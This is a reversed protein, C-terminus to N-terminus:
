HKESRLEQESGGIVIESELERLHAHSALPQVAQELHAFDVQRPNEREGLFKIPVMATRDVELNFVDFRNYYGSLDHFQKPVICEDLDIQEILLRDPDGVKTQAMVEGDPGLIMSPGSPMQELMDVLKPDLDGAVQIADDGLRSSAVINFVKGEFAHAGARIRIASALDYAGKKGPAHTPWIPPYSSIHLEERQAVLAYKALTNTNEGCILAGIRGAPTEVVRLGAGDGQAWVLKEFFTPVLKRHHNLIAGDAGILLNTNWLCGASAHSAESIGLSVIIGNERAATCVKLVEPGPVRVSNEVYRLFLDHNHLPASLAPWFPFGPVFAEPFAVVDVGLTAAEGIYACVKEITAGANLYVPSIHAAAAVVIRSM